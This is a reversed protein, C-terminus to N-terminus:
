VHPNAGESRGFDPKAEDPLTWANINNKMQKENTKDLSSQPESNDETNSPKSREEEHNTEKEGKDDDKKEPTTNRLAKCYIPVNFFKQNTEHYHIANIM